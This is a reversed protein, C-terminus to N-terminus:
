GSGAMVSSIMVVGAPYGDRTTWSFVCQGSDGILEELEAPSLAMKTFDEFDTITPTHNNTMRDAARTVSQRQNRM